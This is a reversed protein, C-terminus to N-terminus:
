KYTYKFEKSSFAAFVGLGNEVNSFSIVPESIPSFQGAIQRSHARYYKYCDSTLSLVEFYIEKRSPDIIDAIELEIALERDIKSTNIILGSKYKSYEAGERGKIINHIVANKMRGKTDMYKPRILIFESSLDEVGIIAEMSVEVKSNDLPREVVKEFTVNLNEEQAPITASAWVEKIDSDNKLHVHLSYEIGEDPTFSGQSVFAKQSSIYRFGPNDLRVGEKYLEVSADGQKPYTIQDTTNLGSSTMLEVIIREGATIESFLFIKSHGKPVVFNADQECSSLLMSVFLLLIGLQKLTKM